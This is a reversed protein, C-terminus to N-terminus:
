HGRRPLSKALTIEIAGDAVALRAGMEAVRRRIPELKPQALWDELVRADDDSAPRTGGIRIAVGGDRVLTQVDLRGSRRQPAGDEACAQLLNMAVENLHDPVVECAPADVDPQFEIPLGRFRRDFALFDCLPKLMANVDVWEPAESRAAAFDAIQRMMRAIREGQARIQRAATRESDPLEGAV